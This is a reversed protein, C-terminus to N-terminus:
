GSGEAPVRQQRDRAFRDRDGFSSQLPARELVGGAPILANM